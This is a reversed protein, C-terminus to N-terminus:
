VSKIQCLPLLKWEDPIFPDNSNVQPPGSEGFERMGIKRYKMGEADPFDTYELPEGKYMFFFRSGVRFGLEGKNNVIWEFESMPLSAIPDPKPEPEPDKEKEEVEGEAKEELAAKKELAQIRTNLVSILLLIRDMVSVVRSISNELYKWYSETM